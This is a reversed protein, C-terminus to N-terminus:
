AALSRIAKKVDRVINAEARSDSPSRSFVVFRSRGRYTLIARLHRGSDDITASAGASEAAETIKKVLKRNVRAGSRTEDAM